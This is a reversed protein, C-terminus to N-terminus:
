VGIMGGVRNLARIKGYNVCDKIRWTTSDACEMRGVMGGVANSKAASKEVTARNICALMDERSASYGVIGGCGNDQASQPHMSQGRAEPRRERCVERRGTTDSSAASMGRYNEVIVRMEDVPAEGYARDSGEHCIDSISGSNFGAVGGTHGYATTSNGTGM